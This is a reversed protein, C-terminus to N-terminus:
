RCPLSPHLLFLPIAAILVAVFPTFLLVPPPPILRHRHIYGNRNHRDAPYLLSDSVPSVGHVVDKHVRVIEGTLLVPRSMGELGDPCPYHIFQEGPVTEVEVSGM